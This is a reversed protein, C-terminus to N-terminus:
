PRAPAIPRRPREPWPLRHFVLGGLLSLVFSLAVLSDGGSMYGATHLPMAVIPAVFYIVPVHVLYIAYSADGIAIMGRATRGGGFDLTLCALVIAAAPLGWCLFRWSDDIEGAHILWSSAFIAAFGCFFLLTAKLAGLRLRHHFWGIGAGYAFELIIPDQLFRLVPNEGSALRSALFLSALVLLLLVAYRARGVWLAIFFVLYFYVEYSLTWGVGLIPRLYGDPGIAPVLLLSTVIRQPELEPSDGRTILALIAVLILTAAWYPPYIRFLRRVLFDLPHAQGSAYRGAGHVMIFGSIVFFIDVGSGLAERFWLADLPTPALRSIWAVTTESVAKVAHLLVVMLAAVARLVQISGLRQNREASEGTM